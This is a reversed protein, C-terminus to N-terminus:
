DAKSLGEGTGIFIIANNGGKIDVIYNDALNSEINRSNRNFGLYKYDQIDLSQLFILSIFQIILILQIIIKCSFM